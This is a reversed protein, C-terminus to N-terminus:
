GVTHPHRVARCCRGRPRQQRRNTAVSAAEFVIAPLARRVRASWGRRAPTSEDAALGLVRVEHGLDRFADVMAAIHIGEAGDALTRHHYLIKM